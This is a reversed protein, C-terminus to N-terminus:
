FILRLKFVGQHAIYKRAIRADYGFGYEFNSKKIDFGAGVLYTVRIQVTTRPVLVSPPEGQLAATIKLPKNIADYRVFGHVEPIFTFDEIAISHDLKAGAILEAKNFEKRNVTLNQSGAGTETYDVKNLRTYEIGFLPTIITNASLSHTYGATIETTTSISNYDASAISITPFTFRIEKNDIKSSGLSLVGQVFWNNALTKLGYLSIVSTHIVSKDGKNSDKHNVINKIFTLAVGITSDDEFLTDFGLINGFYKASYGPHTGRLEQKVDGFFPMFWLGHIQNNTDGATVGSLGSDTVQINSIRADIVRTAGSIMQSASEAAQNAPESGLAIADPQLADLLQVANGSQNVVNLLDERASSNLVPTVNPNNPVLVAVVQDVNPVLVQSLIGESYTWKVLPNAPSNLAVISDDPLTMSGEATGEGDFKDRLEAFITYQRGAPGPVSSIDTLNITVTDAGSMDINIGEAALHGGKVGNFTSNFKPTGM